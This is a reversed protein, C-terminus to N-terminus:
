RLLTYRGTRDYPREFPGLPTGVKITGMVRYNVTGTQMLQRGAEGVGSWTFRLPLRVTSSDNEQVVFKSQLEGEGFKLNDIMVTYSLSSADLNFGNPNYVSLVVDLEGGTLGLGAVRMEKLSVVPEKFVAKGLSACGGLGAGLTLAMAAGWTMLKRM